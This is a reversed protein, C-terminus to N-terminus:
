AVADFAELPAGGRAALELAGRVRQADAALLAVAGLVVEPGAATHRVLAFGQREVRAWWRGEAQWLDEARAIGEFTAGVAPPLAAVLEPLTRAVVAADGLVRAATDRARPPLARDGLVIERAVLLATWSVALASAPPISARIRDALSLRLALTIERPTDGPDGSPSAALVRRMEETRTTGALRSWATNLRGLRYPQPTDTGSLRRLHDGINSVEAAALLVRLM